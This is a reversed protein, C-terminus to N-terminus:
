SGLPKREHRRPPRPSQKLASFVRLWFFAQAFRAASDGGDVAGDFSLTGDNEVFSRRATQVLSPGFTRIKRSFSANQAIEPHRESFAKNPM